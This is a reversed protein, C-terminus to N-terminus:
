PGPEVRRGWKDLELGCGECTWGGWLAQRLSKPRRVAPLARGCGPCANAPSLNVGLKTKKATGQVVLVLGVLAALPVACMVGLLLLEGLGFSLM